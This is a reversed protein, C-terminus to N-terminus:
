LSMELVNLWWDARALTDQLGDRGTRGWTWGEGTGALLLPVGSCGRAAAAKGHGCLLLRAPDEEMQGSDGGWEELGSKEVETILGSM